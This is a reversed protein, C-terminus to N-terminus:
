RSPSLGRCPTTAVVSFNNRLPATPNMSQNPKNRSTDTSFNGLMIEKKAEAPIFLPGTSFRPSQFPSTSGSVIHACPAWSVASAVTCKAMDKIADVEIFVEEYAAGGPDALRKRVEFRYDRPLGALFRQKAAPYTARAKAIYPAEAKM